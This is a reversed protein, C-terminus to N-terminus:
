YHRVVMAIVWVIHGGPVHSGRDGCEETSGNQHSYKSHAMFVSIMNGHRTKHELKGWNQNFTKKM